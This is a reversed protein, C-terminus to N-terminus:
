VILPRHLGHMEAMCCAVFCCKVCHLFPLCFWTIAMSTNKLPRRVLCHFGIGSLFELNASCASSLLFIFSFLLLFSFFLPPLPPCSLFFLLQYILLFLLMIDRLFFWNDSCFTPCFVLSLIKLHMDKVFMTLYACIISLSVFM